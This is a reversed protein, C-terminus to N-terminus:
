SFTICKCLSCILLHFRLIQLYISPFLFFRDQIFQSKEQTHSSTSIGKIYVSYNIYCSLNPISCPVQPFSFFKQPLCVLTYVYPSIFSVSIPLNFPSPIFSVPSLFFYPSPCSISHGNSPSYLFRGSYFSEVTDVYMFPIKISDVFLPSSLAVVLCRKGCLSAELELFPNYRTSDNVSSAGM